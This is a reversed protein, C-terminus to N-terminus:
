LVETCLWQKHNKFRQKEFGVVEGFKKFAEQTLPKPKLEVRM